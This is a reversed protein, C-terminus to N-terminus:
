KGVEIQIYGIPNVIKMGEFESLNRLIGKDTSIFYDCNAEVACSLHLADYQYLRRNTLLFARAIIKSSANVDVIARNKWDSILRRKESHPNNENEYDLIYSWVLKHVDNKIQDQIFFKAETELFITINNQDDFPRNFCCNDLYLKLTKM